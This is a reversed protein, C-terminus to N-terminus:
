TAGVLEVRFPQYERRGGISPSNLSTIADIVFVRDVSKVYNLSHVDRVSYNTNTFKEPDPTSFLGAERM